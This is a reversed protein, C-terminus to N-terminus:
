TDAHLRRRMPEQGTNVLLGELDKVRCKELELDRCYQWTYKSPLM